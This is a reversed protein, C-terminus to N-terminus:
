ASVHVCVCQYVVGLMISLRKYIRCNTAEDGAFSLLGRMLLSSTPRPCFAPYQAGNSISSSSQPM